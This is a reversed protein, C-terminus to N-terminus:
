IGQVQSIKDMRFRKVRRSDNHDVATLYYKGNHRVISKSVPTGWTRGHNEAARTGIQVNREKGNYRFSFIPAGRKEATQVRQQSLM